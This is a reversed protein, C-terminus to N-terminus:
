LQLVFDLEGEAVTQEIKICRVLQGLERWFIAIKQLHNRPLAVM